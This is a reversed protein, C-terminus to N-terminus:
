QQKSCIASDIDEVKELLIKQEKEIEKVSLLLEIFLDRESLKWLRRKEIAKLEIEIREKEKKRKEQEAVKNEIKNKIKESM